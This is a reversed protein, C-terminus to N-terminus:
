VQSSIVMSMERQFEISFPVGAVQGPIIGGGVTEVSFHNVQAYM